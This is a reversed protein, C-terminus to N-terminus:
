RTSLVIKEESVHLYPYREEVVLDECFQYMRNPTTVVVVHRGTNTM